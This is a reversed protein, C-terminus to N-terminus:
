FDRWVAALLAGGAGTDRGKVAEVWGVQFRTRAQLRTVISFQAKYLDFDSQVNPNGGTEFPTGNRMGTIGFYQVMGTFRRSFDMGATVDSRFQDAPAGNRRRYAAGASVFVHRAAVTGGRGVMIGSELDVQHNGPPPTRTASYLPFQAGVQVSVVTRSEGSLRRRIGIETDGLGGSSSSGFDNSYKMFPVFTNLVLTTKSTLGYELYPNIEFQRFSGGNGFAHLRGSADFWHSTDLLSFNVIVQGHGAEQTWAAGHLPACCWGIAWALVAGITISCRV